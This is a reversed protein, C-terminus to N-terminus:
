SSHGHKRKLRGVLGTGVLGAGLLLLTAPEPVQRVSLLADGTAATTGAQAAITVRETLSFSTDSFPAGPGSCTLALPSAGSPGASCIPTGTGFLANTADAFAAFTTTAGNTQTGGVQADWSLSTGNLDTESVMITYTRAPAGATATIGYQLDMDFPALAPAGSGTGGVSVTITGLTSTFAVVGTLGSADCAAGDSCTTLTIGDSLSITMNAAQAGTLSLLVLSLAVAAVLSGKTGVWFKGRM